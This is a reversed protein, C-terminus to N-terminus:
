NINSSNNASPWDAMGGASAKCHVVSCFYVKKYYRAICLVTFICINLKIECIRGKM